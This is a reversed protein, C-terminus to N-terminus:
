EHAEAVQRTDGRMNKFANRRKMNGWCDRCIVLRTVKHVRQSSKMCSACIKRNCYNCTENKFIERKCRECLSTM